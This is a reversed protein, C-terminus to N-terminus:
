FGILSQTFITQPAAAHKTIDAPEMPPNMPKTFIPAIGNEAEPVFLELEITFVVLLLFYCYWRFM